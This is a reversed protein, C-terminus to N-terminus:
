KLELISKKFIECFESVEERTNLIGKLCSFVVNIGSKETSVTNVVVFGGNTGISQNFIMDDINYKGTTQSNKFVGLNSFRATQTASKVFNQYSFEKMKSASKVDYNPSMGQFYNMVSKEDAVTASTAKYCKECLKWFLEQDAKSAELDTIPINNWIAPISRVGIMAMEKQEAPIYRRLNVPLMSSLYYSNDDSNQFLKSTVLNQLYLVEIIPTITMGKSRAVKVLNKTEEPNLNFVKFFSIYDMSAEFGPWKSVSAGKIDTSPTTNYNHDNCYPKLLSPLKLKLWRKYIFETDPYCNLINEVAPPLQTLVDIDKSLDFVVSNEDVSVLEEELTLKNSYDLFIEHFNTGTGGDTYSHNFIAILITGNILVLKFIPDSNGLKFTYKEADYLVEDMDVVERQQFEVVDKFLMKPVPFIENTEISYNTSLLSHKLVMKRLTSFIVSPTLTKNYVGLVWFNHYFGNLHRGTFNQEIVGLPRCLGKSRLVELSSM